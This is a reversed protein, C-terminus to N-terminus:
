RLNPYRKEGLVEGIRLALHLALHTEADELDVGTIEQIRRLRYLLTNRHADMKEAMKSPSRHYKYYAELTQLLEGNNRADHEILRGLMENYFERLEKNTGISLLLRYVGLDGFYTLQGPGFLRLGMTVAKEAENAQKPLGEIGDYHRGIGSSVSLDDWQQAIRKHFIEAANKAANISAFEKGTSNAFLVIFRDDRVRTIVALSRLAAEQEVLRQLERGMTENISLDLELERGDLVITLAKKRVNADRQRFAFAAVWYPLQLNYGLRRARELLAEPSSFDGELLEDLVNAQFKDEVASVAIERAREIALASAARQLAVRSKRDFDMGVLSVYGSVSSQAIIPAALQLMGTGDGIEFTHLPPDSARLEKNHLWERLSPANERLVSSLGDAHPNAIVTAAVTGGGMGMMRARGNGSALMSPQKEYIEPVFRVRLRFNADEVVVAKSTLKCLLEAVASIGKGEIALETFQRYVEQNWQQLQQNNNAIYKSITRELEGLSASDPLAFLPFAMEEAIEVGTETVDGLVAAAAVGREALWSFLRSIHVEEDLARLSRMSILVIEGGKLDDFIPARSRSVVVWTVERSLGARGALLETGSPLIQQQLEQVTIM